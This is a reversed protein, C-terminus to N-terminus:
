QGHAAAFPRGWGVLARLSSLDPIAVVLLHDDQSGSLCSADSEYIYIHPIRVRLLVRLRSIELGLYTFITTGFLITCAMQGGTLGATAAVLAAAM